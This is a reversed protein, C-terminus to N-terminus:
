AWVSIKTKKYGRGRLENSITDEECPKCILSQVCHGGCYYTALDVDAEPFWDELLVPEASAVYFVIERFRRREHSVNFCPVAPAPESPDRVPTNPIAFRTWASKRHPPNDRLVVRYSRM